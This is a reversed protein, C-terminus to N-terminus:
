FNWIRRLSWVAVRTATPLSASFCSRVKRTWQFTAGSTSFSSSADSQIESILKELTGGRKEEALRMVLEAVTYFKVSLLGLECARLGAVIALNPKGTGVPGYLVLNRKGQIFTGEALDSWQLSSPLKLGHRDYGELTKYVPFGARSILRSRRSRERSEMEESLVRYLFEEQKPTAETECLTVARQSLVLKKCFSSIESRPSERERTVNM